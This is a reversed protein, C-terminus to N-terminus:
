EKAIFHVDVTFNKIENDVLYNIFDDSSPASVNLNILIVEGPDLRTGKYDWTLTLYDSIEPPSWDTLNLTLM